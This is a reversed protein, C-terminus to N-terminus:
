LETTTKHRMIRTLMQEAAGQVATIGEDGNALYMVYSSSTVATVHRGTNTERGDM